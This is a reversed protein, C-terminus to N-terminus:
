LSGGVINRAIYDSVGFDNMNKVEFSSYEDIVVHGMVINELPDSKKVLNNIHNKGYVTIGGKRVYVYDREHRIKGGSLEVLSHGNHYYLISNDEIVSDVVDTNFLYSSYIATDVHLATSFPSNPTLIVLVPMNEVSFSNFYNRISADVHMGQAALEKPRLLIEIQKDPHKKECYIKMFNIVRHSDTSVVIQSVEKSALAKEVTWDLLPKGGVQHLVFEEDSILEERVPIFAVVQDSKYGRRFAHDRYIEARNNLIKNYNTTLSRRHKRYYFLSQKLNKVKYNETLALWIDVGDQCELKQNHGGVEIYASRRILTCAGHAPQDLLTVETSFDHRNVCHLIHGNEDVEYYNPFVMAIRKDKEIENVLQDIFSPSVWDDADVRVVYKGKAMTFAKTISKVLGINEQRILRISPNNEYQSLKKISDDTSGDDIVFLEINSYSQSLLSEVCKELYQAYNHNLVYVTVLPKSSIRV